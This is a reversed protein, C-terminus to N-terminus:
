PSEQFKSLNRIRMQLYCPCFNYGKSKTWVTIAEQFERAQWLELPPDCFFDYENGPGFEATGTTTHGPLLNYITEQVERVARVWNPLDEFDCLHGLAGPPTPLTTM